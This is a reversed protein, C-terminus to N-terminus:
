FGNGSCIMLLVLIFFMLGVVLICAILYSVFKSISTCLGSVRGSDTPEILGATLKLLLSYVAMSLLPSLIVSFLCILGGIGVANKILTSGAVVVDFGDKIFGGVIPVSNSITYKAVKFSISDFTASAIGKTTLFIGFVTATIGLVWKICSSIFDVFKGFKYDKSFHNIISFILFFLILPLVIKLVLSLVGNSLFVVTPKYLGASVNGGGAVMLTLIIPSMIESSKAINEISNRTNTYFISVDTFLLLIISLFAVFNITEAVGESLFASRIGTVVNCLICIAIVSLFIPISKSVNAFIASIVREFINTVNEENTGNILSTLIFNFDIEGGSIQNFYDKIGSLDINNLQDNVTATLEDAFCIVNPQLLSIFALILIILSFIKKM